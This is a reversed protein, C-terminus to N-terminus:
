KLILKQTESYGEGKMRMLYMGNELHTLDITEKFYDNAQFERSLIQAGTISFVELRLTGIENGAYEITLIGQSPNPYVQPIISHSLPISSTGTLQWRQDGLQLGDTAATASRLNRDYGFDIDNLDELAYQNPPSLAAIDFNNEVLYQWYELNLAPPSTFNIAESFFNTTDVQSNEIFALFNPPTEPNAALVDPDAFINTRINYMEDSRFELLVDSIDSQTHWNNNSLDFSRLNDDVGISDVTFLVDHSGAVALYAFNYFINNTVIAKVTMGLDFYVDNLYNSQYYTNHSFNLVNTVSAMRLFLPGDCNYFTTNEISLTDQPRALTNIISPFGPDEFVLGNIFVSNTVYVKSGNSTRIFDKGVFEFVCDDVNLRLDNDALRIAQVLVTSDLAKQNFKLGEVVLHGTVEFHRKYSDDIGVIVPRAGDGQEARIHLTNDLSSIKNNLVYTGGRRLEFITNGPNDESDIAINLAGAEGELDPEVVIVTKQGFAPLCMLFLGMTLLM